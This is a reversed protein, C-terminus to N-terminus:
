APKKEGQKWIKASSNAAAFKRAYVESAFFFIRAGKYAMGAVVPPKIRTTCTANRHRRTLAWWIVFYVGGLGLVVTIPGDGAVSSLLLIWVVVALMAVLLRGIPM